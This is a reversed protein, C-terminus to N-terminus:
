WPLKNQSQFEQSNSLEDESMWLQKALVWREGTTGGFALSLGLGRGELHIVLSWTGGVSEGPEQTQFEGSQLHGQTELSGKLIYEKYWDNM